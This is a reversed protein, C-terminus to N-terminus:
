PIPNGDHDFLITTTYGLPWCALDLDLNAVIKTCKKLMATKEELSLGAYTPEDVTELSAIASNIADIVATVAGVTEAGLLVINLLAIVDIIM